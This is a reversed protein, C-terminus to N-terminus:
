EHRAGDKAKCKPCIGFLDLRYSQLDYGNEKALKSQLEETKTDSVEKIEGCKLCVLHGHHYQGLVPEYSPTEDKFRLERVLGCDALLKITRYVTAIGISKDTKKVKTYLEEATLHKKSTLISEVITLRKSSHKLGKNDIYEKLIILAREILRM